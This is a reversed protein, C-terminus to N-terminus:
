PLRLYISTSYWVGFVSGGGGHSRDVIVLPWGVHRWRQQLRLSEMAHLRHNRQPLFGRKQICNAWNRLPFHPSTFRSDHKNPDDEDRGDFAVGDSALVSASIAKQSPIITQRSFLTDLEMRIFNLRSANKHVYLQCASNLFITLTAVFQSLLRWLRLVPLRTVLHEEHHMWIVNLINLLQSSNRSIFSLSIFSLSIFSLLFWSSSAQISQSISQEILLNCILARPM